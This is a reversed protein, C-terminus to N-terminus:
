SFVRKFITEARNKYTHMQQVKNQASVITSARSDAEICNKLITQIETPSDFVLYDVNNEFYEEIEPTTYHVLQLAGAMAAEFLRPGPTSPVITTPKGFLDTSRGMYLTAFSSSYMHALENHDLRRNSCCFDLKTPWGTGLVNLPLDLETFALDEILQIRNDFAHGCFFICNNILEPPERFFSPDAALPLHYVNKHDLHSVTNKDNLFLYDYFNNIKYLFEHEYPEDHLWFVLPITERLCATKLDLYYSHETACSGFVIVLDCKCHKMIAPASILECNIVTSDPLYDRFGAAVYGRLRSNQNLHDPSGGVILINM